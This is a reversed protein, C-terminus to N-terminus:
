DIGYNEGYCEAWEGEACQRMKAARAKPPLTDEAYVPPLINIKLRKIKGKKTRKFTCFIPVVPVGYKVAYRFAGDKMPRPKQYAGWLAEEAYFNIIKGKSLLRGMEANLNRMASLDASFPLMAGHRMIYGCFGSKNNYPAETHYSRFYGMAQRVFLTDLLSIHNCVCIAGKGKLEKLNKRGTVRAGYYVKLVIPALLALLGNIVGYLLKDFGRNRYKYNKDPMSWSGVVRGYEFNYKGRKELIHQIDEAIAYAKRKKKM